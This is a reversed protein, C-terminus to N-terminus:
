LGGILAQTRYHAANPATHKEEVHVARPLAEWLRTRVSAPNDFMQLVSTYRTDGPLTVLVNSVCYRIPGGIHTYSYSIAAASHFEKSGCRTVRAGFGLYLMVLQPHLYPLVFAFLFITPM